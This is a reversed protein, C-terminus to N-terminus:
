GYGDRHTIVDSASLGDTITNVGPELQAWVSPDTTFTPANYVAGSASSTIAKTQCDITLTGDPAFTDEFTLTYNGVVYTGDYYDVNAASGVTVTPSTITVAVYSVSETLTLTGPAGMTGDNELGVAIAVSDSFSQTTTVTGNSRTSWETTWDSEGTVWNRMFAQTYSGLSATVRSLSAVQTSGSPTLLVMSDYDSTGVNVLAFVASTGDSSLQHPEDYRYNGTTAPFWSGAHTGHARLSWNDYKWSSNSTATTDFLDPDDLEGCRPNTLGSGYIIDVYTDSGDPACDVLAWVKSSAGGGGQVNCPRSVGNVFVFVNTSTAASDNLTFQIPYSVLSTGVAASVTCARLTKHTSTTLAISPRVAVNGDNTVTAPNSSSTDASSAQWIPVAAWLRAEYILSQVVGADQIPQLELIEADVYVSTGDHWNAVLAVTSSRYPSFWKEINSKFTAYATATDAASIRVTFELAEYQRATTLPSTNLRARSQVSKRRAIPDGNPFYVKYSTAGNVTNGGVSTITNAPM